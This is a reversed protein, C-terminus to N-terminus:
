WSWGIRRPKSTDVGGQRGVGRRLNCSACAARLNAPHDSGGQARPLVHDVHTAYAGCLQGGNSPDGGPVPVRCRYGDRQLV